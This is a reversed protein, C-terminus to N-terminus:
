SREGANMTKWPSDSTSTTYLDDFRHPSWTKAEKKLASLIAKVLNDPYVQSETVHIGELPRCVQREQASLCRRLAQAIKGNNLMFKYTKIIPYNDRDVAGLAGGDTLVIEVGPQDALWRVSEEEWIRSKEPNEFLFFRGERLQEECKECAWKPPPLDRRAAVGAGM